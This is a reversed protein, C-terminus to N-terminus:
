SAGEGKRAQLILTLGRESVYPLHRLALLSRLSLRAMRWTLRRSGLFPMLSYAQEVRFGNRQFLARLEERSYIHRHSPDDFLAPDPYRVNPTAVAIRGGDALVRGWERLLEDPRDFHEIVHQAVIADFSGDAFPLRTADGVALAADPACRRALAMGANNSDLGVTLGAKPSPACARLFGGGGCGVELVRERGSLRCASLLHRVEARFMANDRAAYYERSYGAAPAVKLNVAM